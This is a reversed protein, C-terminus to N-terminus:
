KLDMKTNMAAHFRELAGGAQFLERTQFMQTRVDVGVCSYPIMLARNALFVEGAFRVQTLMQQHMLFVVFAGVMATTARLLELLTLMQSLVHLHM